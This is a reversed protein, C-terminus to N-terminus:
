GGRGEGRVGIASDTLKMGEAKEEQKPAERKLCLVGKQKCERDQKGRDHCVATSAGGDRKRSRCSIRGSKGRCGVFCSEAREWGGNWLM